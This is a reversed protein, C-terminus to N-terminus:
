AGMHLFTNRYGSYGKVTLDANVTLDGSLTTNGAGDSDIWNGASDKIKDGKISIFPTTDLGFNPHFFTNIFEEYKETQLFDDYPFTPPTFATM